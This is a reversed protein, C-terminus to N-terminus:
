SIISSPICIRISILVNLTQTQQVTGAVGTGPLVQCPKVRYLVHELFVYLFGLSCIVLVLQFGHNVRFVSTLSFVPHPRFTTEIQSITVFQVTADQPHVNAVVHYASYTDGVTAKDFKSHAWHPLLLM